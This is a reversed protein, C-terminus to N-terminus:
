IGQHLLRAPNEGALIPALGPDLEAKELEAPLNFLFNPRSPPHIDSAICYCAGDAICQRALRRVQEHRSNLSALNVQLLVGKEMEEALRRQAQKDAMNPAREPHAMLIGYGFHRLHDAAQSWAHDFDMFLAAELLIWQKGPPGLAILSLEHKTQEIAVRASLEGGRYLTVDISRAAEVLDDYARPLFASPNAGGGQSFYFASIHPTLAIEKVGGDSALQLWELSTELNPSGDDVAPLFHSHLDTYM